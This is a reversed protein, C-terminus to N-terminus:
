YAIGLTLMAGRHTYYIEVATSATQWIPRYAAPLLATLAIHGALTAAFYNNVSGTSPRRGLIPNTEHGREPHRAADLAYFWDALHAVTYAAERQRDETSWPEGHATLAFALAFAALTYKM